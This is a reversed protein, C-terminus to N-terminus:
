AKLIQRATPWVLLVVMALPALAWCLEVVISKHFNTSDNTGRRHHLWVSAVMLAFAVAFILACFIMLFWRLEAYLMMM